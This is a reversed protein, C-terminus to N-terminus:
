VLKWGAIKVLYDKAFDGVAMGAMKERSRDKITTLEYTEPTTAIKWLVTQFLHPTRKQGVPIFGFMAFMARTDKEATEGSLKKQEATVYLNGKCTLLMKTFKGYMANIVPWDKWGEFANSEKQGKAAIRAAVFFDDLDKSFVKETFAAQVWDWLPSIMDVMLWDQPRMKKHIKEMAKMLGEWDEVEEVVVNTPMGDDGILKAFAPDSLMRWASVDSDVVYFIADSKTLKALRAICYYDYSKGLGAGGFELIRERSMLTPPHLSM